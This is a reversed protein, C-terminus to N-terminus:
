VYMAICVAVYSFHFLSHGKTILKEITLTGYDIM